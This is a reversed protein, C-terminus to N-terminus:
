LQLWRRLADDVMTMINAPAEGIVRVIRQRRLSQIKDVQVESARDLGTESSATLAVRFLHAGNTVSTVPCLSFSAHTENFSNSQVIIFPRPKETFGGPGVALVVDGRKIEL